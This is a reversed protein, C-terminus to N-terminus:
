IPPLAKLRAVYEATQPTDPNIAVETLHTSELQIMSYKSVQASTIAVINGPGVDTGILHRKEPWLTIEVMNMREDRLVVKTLITFLYNRKVHGISDTLVKNNKIRNFLLNYSIFGFCMSPINPNEVPVFKTKRVISAIHNATAMYDSAKTCVYGSVKYCSNLRIISDFFEIELTDGTAEIGDGHQDVFQYCLEDKKNMTPKAVVIWKKVVRIEILQPKEMPRIDRVGKIAM